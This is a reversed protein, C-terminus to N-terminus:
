YHWVYHWVQHWMTASTAGKELLEYAGCKQPVWGNECLTNLKCLNRWPNVGQSIFLFAFRWYNLHIKLEVGLRLM